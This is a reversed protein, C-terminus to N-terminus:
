ASNRTSSMSSSVGITDALATMTAATGMTMCVGYSRAIGDRDVHRGGVVVERGALDPLDALVPLAAALGTAFTAAALIPFRM